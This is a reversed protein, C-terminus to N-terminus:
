EASEERPLRVKSAEVAKFGILLNTTDGIISAVRIANGDGVIDNLLGLFGIDILAVVDGVIIDPDDEVAKSCPVRHDFMARCAVPDADFFRNLVLVARNVFDDGIAAPDSPQMLNAAKWQEFSMPQTRNGELWNADNVAPLPAPEGKWDRFTVGSQGRIERNLLHEALGPLPVSIENNRLVEVMDDTLPDAPRPAKVAPMPISLLSTPLSRHLPPPARFATLWNFPNVKNGAERQSM